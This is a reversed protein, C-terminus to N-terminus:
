KDNQSVNYSKRSISVAGIVAVIILLSLIEFPVAYKSLLLEGVGELSGNITTEEKFGGKALIFLVSGVAGVLYIIGSGILIREGSFIKRKTKEPNIIMITFLILVMVAGAYLLVQLAAVLHANLLVFIASQLILCLILWLASFLPNKTLIVMLATLVVLTSIIYFAM